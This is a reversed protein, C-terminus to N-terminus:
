VVHRRRSLPAPPATNNAARRADRRRLAGGFLLGRGRGGPGSPGRRPRARGGHPWRASGGDAPMPLNGPRLAVKRRGEGAALLGDRRLWRDRGHVTADQVPRHICQAHRAGEAVRAQARRHERCAGGLADGNEGVRGRLTPDAGADLLVEVTQVRDHGKSCVTMLATYGDVPSIPNPDAGLELLTRAMEVRHCATALALASQGTRVMTGKTPGSPPMNHEAYANVDAGRSIFFAAMMPHDYRVAAMLLQMSGEYDRYVGQVSAGANLFIEVMDVHCATVAEVLTEHVWLPTAHLRQKDATKKKSRERWGIRCPAGTEM